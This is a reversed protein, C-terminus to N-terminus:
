MFCLVASVALMSLFANMSSADLQSKAKSGPGSKVGSAYITASNLSSASSCTTDLVLNSIGTSETYGFLSSYSEISTSYVLNSIVHSNRNFYGKFTYNFSTGIPVFNNMHGAMNIDQTLFVSELLKPYAIEPM